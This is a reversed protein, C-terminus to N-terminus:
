SDQAQVHGAARLRRYILGRSVGLRQAADSVNGNCAQLTRQILELDSERLRQTALAAPAEMAAEAEQEAAHPTPAAIDPLPASTPACPADHAAPAPAAQCTSGLPSPHTVLGRRGDPARMEARAWVQLGNPLVLPAAGTDPLAALRAWSKGFSEDPSRETSPGQATLGGLLSRAVGNEWALRGQADIGVLGAMASDLLEVAVQFRIVLHESSQAVLLRNEIAGAFLGAIAAADFAFPIRESSLDLVGALQGRVDRIPAAACHMDKVSAFFHEGGLVCVPKGTRAAVGPATTGVAGESLNVGLRTAVPMLEEHARGVCSAGILVGSADTLMAACSTTSLISELRPLEDMWARRLLRNKMLALQTRSATVPEFTAQEHPNGHLRLCRAWSEFVDAGVVGAPSQGEEFFRQRALEIRASRSDFFSSNSLHNM